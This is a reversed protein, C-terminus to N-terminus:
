HSASGSRRKASTNILGTLHTIHSLSPPRWGGTTNYTVCSHLILSVQVPKLGSVSVGGVRRSGGRWRRGAWVACLCLFELSLGLSQANAAIMQVTLFRLPIALENMRLSTHKLLQQPYYSIEGTAICVLQSHISSIFPVTM